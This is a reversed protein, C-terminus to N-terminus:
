ETNPGGGDRAFVDALADNVKSALAPDQRVADCARKVVAAIARPITLTRKRVEAQAVKRAPSKGARSDKARRKGCAPCGAVRRVEVAHAPSSCRTM